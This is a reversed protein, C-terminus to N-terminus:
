KKRLEELTEPRDADVLEFGDRVPLLRVRDPHRKVVVSGGKGEPLQKLEPFAWAPFLVPAGPTGGFAPRWIAQPEELACSVLDAVTEWGLLPQDGPCFLCGDVAGVAELGLRVTDSRHPQDHLVVDIGRVRCFDAVDGHRTVVVRRAFLGETAQLARAIMPEGHFDAMLKNGGFRVGLGSAM